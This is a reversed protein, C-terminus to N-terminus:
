EKEKATKVGLSIGEHLGKLYYETMTEIEKIRTGLTISASPYEIGVDLKNVSRSVKLSMGMAELMREMNAGSLKGEFGRDLLTNLDELIKAEQKKHETVAKGLTARHCEACHLELNDTANNDHKGDKHHRHFGKKLTNGCKLCCGDQAIYVLDVQWKHFVKREEQGTM